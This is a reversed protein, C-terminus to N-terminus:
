EGWGQAAAYIRVRNSVHIAVAALVALAIIPALAAVWGAAQIMAVEMAPVDRPRAAFLSPPAIRPGFSAILAMAACHATVIWYTLAIRRHTFGARLGIQYLHERHAKLMPRGHRARHALTLLVDALLPFFLLPPVIPTVGGDQVLLLGAVAALMGVFLAGADGAFVRGNPFNWILLGIIGGVGCLSLATVHPAGNLAGLLAMVALGVAMSGLSLGNAGDMFNVANTLTFVWLASGLVAVVFPFAITVAGGIPLADARAVFLAVLLALVAVIAFKLRANLDALDDVLGLLLAAFAAAVGFGTRMLVDADLPDSWRAQPWFTLLALALAFGAAAALGGATPVPDRHQKRAADPNDWLGAAMVVPCLLASALTALATAIALELIV